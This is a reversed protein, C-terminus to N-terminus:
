SPNPQHPSNAEEPHSSIATIHGHLTTYSAPYSNLGMTALARGTEPNLFM